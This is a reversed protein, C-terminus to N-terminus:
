VYLIECLFFNFLCVFLCVFFVRNGGPPPSYITPAIFVPKPWRWRSFTIFFKHLLQASSENPYMQLIKVVMIAWNVGGLFGLVNSYIGHVTAWEKVTRLVIRFDHLKEPPILNLMMQVVRVGNLSRISPVDLGILHHDQIQFEYRGNNTLQTVSSTSHLMADDATNTSNMPATVNSDTFPPPTDSYNAFVLDVAIDKWRM